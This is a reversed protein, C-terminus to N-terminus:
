RNRGRQCLGSHVRATIANDISDFLTRYKLESERLAAEVLVRLVEESSSGNSAEVLEAERLNEEVRGSDM